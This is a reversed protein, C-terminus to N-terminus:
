IESHDKISIIRADHCLFLGRFLKTSNAIVRLSTMAHHLLATLYRVFEAPVALHIHLITNDVYGESVYLRNVHVNSYIM